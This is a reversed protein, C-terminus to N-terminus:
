LFMETSRAQQARTTSRQHLSALDIRVSEIIVENLLSKLGQVMKPDRIELGLEFNNGLSYQTWNASGVYALKDGIVVKAHLGVFQRQRNSFNLPTWHEFVQLVPARSALQFLEFIKLIAGLTEIDQALNRTVITFRAKRIALERLIDRYIEVFSNDIYPQSVIVEARSSSLIELFVERTSRLGLSSLAEPLTAALSFADSREGSFLADDVEPASVLLFARESKTGVIRVRGEEALDALASQLFLHERESFKGSLKRYTTPNKVNLSRIIKGRITSKLSQGWYFGNV